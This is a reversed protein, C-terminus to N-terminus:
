WTFCARSHYRVAKAATYSARYTEVISEDVSQQSQAVKWARLYWQLQHVADSILSLHRSSSLVRRGDLSSISSVINLCVVGIM